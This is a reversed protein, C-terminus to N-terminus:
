WIWKNKDYRIDYIGESIFALGVLVCMILFASIGFILFFPLAVIKRITKYIRKRREMEYEYYGHDSWFESM